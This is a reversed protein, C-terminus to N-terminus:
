KNAKDTVFEFSPLIYKLDDFSLSNENMHSYAQCEFIIKGNELVAFKSNKCCFMLSNGMHDEGKYVYHCGYNIRRFNYIKKVNSPMKLIALSETTKM